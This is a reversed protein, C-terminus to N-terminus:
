WFQSWRDHRAERVVSGEVVGDWVVAEAGLKERLRGITEEPIRCNEIVVRLSRGEAGSATQPTPLDCKWLPSGSWERLPWITGCNRIHISTLNLFVDGCPEDEPLAMAFFFAPTQEGGYIVLHDASRALADLKAWPKPLTFAESAIELRRLSSMAPVLNLLRWGYESAWESTSQIQPVIEIPGLPSAAGSGLVAQSTIWRCPSLFAEEDVVSLHQFTTDAEARSSLHRTISAALEQIGDETRVMGWFRLHLEAEEPITFLDLVTPVAHWRGSISLDRLRKMPISQPPHPAETIATPFAEARIKLKELGPISSFADYVEESTKWIGCQQLTLSTIGSHMSSINPAIFTGELHLLHLKPSLQVHMLQPPSIPGDLDTPWANILRFVELAPAHDKDLGDFFGSPLAIFRDFHGHSPFFVAELSLVRIRPLEKLALQVARISPRGRRKEFGKQWQVVIPRPRSCELAVETWETSRLPIRVWLESCQRAAHRWHRCVHMIATWGLPGDSRPPLYSPRGDRDYTLRFYCFISQLLEVPVKSIPSSPKSSGHSVLAASDTPSSDATCGSDSALTNSAGIMTSHTYRASECHTTIPCPSKLRRRM